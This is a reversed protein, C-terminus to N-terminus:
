LVQTLEKGEFRNRLANNQCSYVGEVVWHGWEVSAGVGIGRYLVGVGARRVRRIGCLGPEHFHEIRDIAVFRLHRSDIRKGIRVRM